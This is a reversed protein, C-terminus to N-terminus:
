FSSYKSEEESPRPDLLFRSMLPQHHNHYTFRSSKQAKAPYVLFVVVVVVVVFCYYLLLKFLEKLM